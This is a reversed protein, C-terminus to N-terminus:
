STGYIFYISYTYIKPLVLYTNYGAANIKHAM